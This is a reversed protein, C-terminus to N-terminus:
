SFNLNQFDSQDLHQLQKRTYSLSQVLAVASIDKKAIHLNRWLAAALVPDGYYLGEDIVTFVRTM